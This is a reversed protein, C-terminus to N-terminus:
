NRHVPKENHNHRKICLMRELHTPRLLNYPMPETTLTGPSELVPETTTTCAKGWLMHSRGPDPIWGMDGANAPPNKVVSDGPFGQTSTKTNFTDATRQILSFCVNVSM